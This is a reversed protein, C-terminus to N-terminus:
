YTRAAEVNNVKNQTKRLDSEVLIVRNEQSTISEALTGVGQRVQSSMSGSAVPAVFGGEAFLKPIKMTNVAQMFDTGYHQVAKKNQIFEGGEAEFGGRGQVTFPVGGKSHSPGQILGGDQFKQSDIQKINARYVGTLIGSSIAGVIANFPPPFQMSQAIANILGTFYSITASTKQLKKQKEFSEQRIKQKQKEADQESITGAKLAADITAVRENTQQAIRQNANGLILQIADVAGQYSAKIGELKDPDIGLRDALSQPANPDAETTVTTTTTGGTAAKFDEIALEAEKLNDLLKQKDTDNLVNDLIGFKENEASLDLIGKIEAVTKEMSKLTLENQEKQYQAMLAKKAEENNGLANYDELYKLKLNMSDEILYDKNEQLQKQITELNLKSLNDNYEQQIKFRAKLELETMETFDKILGLENLQAQMQTALKEEDTAIFERIKDLRELEGQNIAAYYDQTLKIKAALEDKTLKSDDRNLKLLKLREDLEFKLQENTTRNIESIEALREKEKNIAEQILANQEKKLGSTIKINEKRKEAVMDEAADLQSVLEEMKKQDERSVDGMSQQIKLQEIKMKLIDAEKKSYDETIKLIEDVAAQREAFSKSTDKSIEQLDREKDEYEDKLKILNIESQEIQKQLAAIQQGKKIAEDMFEKTAQAGAKIKDSMDKVGTVAQVAGNAVQKFDLNIIGKVIEAIATFRNIVNQLVGEALNKLIQQPNKFADVMATGLDQVVGWLSSMIAKLPELVRTVADAGRQTSLFGAVLLGLAVVIAGIGTSILAIKLFNMAKSLGGTAATTGVTAAGQARTAVATAQSAAAQAKMADVLQMGTEYGEKINQTLEGLNVGMINVKGLASTIAAEYNGVNRRNDGVAKENEKLKNTINLIESTLEKGAETNDREEQSMKNYEATMLKLQAKLQENSGIEANIATNHTNMVDVAARREKNTNALEDKQSSLQIKSSEIASTLLQEQAIQEETATGNKSVEKQLNRLAIEYDRINSQTQKIADQQQIQIKTIEELGRKASELGKMEIDYVIKEAM